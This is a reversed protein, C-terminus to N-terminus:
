LLIALIMLLIGGIQSMTAVNQMKRNNEYKYSDKKAEYAVMIRQLRNIDSDTTFTRKFLKQELRSLRNSINDNTYNGRLLEQELVALQFPMTQDDITEMGSKRYYNDLNHGSNVNQSSAIHKQPNLSVALREVRKNLSETSTKNYIKTELRDLRKYINESKYTTNFVEQEMADVVPYDVSADEKLNMLDQNLRNTNNSGSSDLNETKNKNIKQPVFGIDNKINNIRNQINGSKKVGYLYQEIREVRKTENENDYKYGFITKEIAAVPSEINEKPYCEGCSILLILLIFLLKKM